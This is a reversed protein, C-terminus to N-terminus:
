DLVWSKAKEELAAKKVLHKNIASDHHKLETKAQRIVDEQLFREQVPSRLVDDLDNEYFRELERALWPSEPCNEVNNKGSRQFLSSDSGQGRSRAASDQAIPSNMRPVNSVLSNGTSYAQNSSFQLM